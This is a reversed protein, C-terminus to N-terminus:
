SRADGPAFEFTQVEASEPQAYLLEATTYLLINVPTGAYGNKHDRVSCINLVALMRRARRYECRRVAPQLDNEAVLKKRLLERDGDTEHGHGHGYFYDRRM